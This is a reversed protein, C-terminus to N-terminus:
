SLAEILKLQCHHTYQQQTHCSTQIVLSTAQAAGRDHINASPYISPIGLIEAM